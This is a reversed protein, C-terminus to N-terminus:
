ALVKPTYGRRRLEDLLTPVVKPDLFVLCHPAPQVFEAGSLRSIAHLEEPLVDEGFEVVAMQDYMQHRGARSQWTQLTEWVAPPLPFGVQTFVEGVATADQGSHLTHRFAAPDLRLLTKTTDRTIEVSILRLIRRLEGARWDNTLEITEDAMFQLVNAPPRQPVGIPLTSPVRFAVPHDKAYGIQVHLLWSAPGNLWAEVVRGYTSMWVEYAMQQPDAAQNEIVWKWQIAQWPLNWLDRRLHYIVRRFTEIDFWTDAPLGAVLRALWVDTSQVQVLLEDVSSWYTPGRVGQSQTWPFAMDLVSWTKPRHQQPTSETLTPRRLRQLRELPTMTEWEADPKAAPMLTPRGQATQVRCLGAALMQDLLFRALHQESATRYGWRTLTVSDLLSARRPDLTQNLGMIPNPPKKETLTVLPLEAALASLLQEAQQTIGTVTLHVPQSLRDAAVYQMKPVAPRPLWQRYGAPLLYGNYENFFLVCRETLNLITAEIAKLTMSRETTQALVEKLLRTPARSPEMVALWGAVVLEEATLTQVAVAMHAPNGLYDVMQEVLDSKANGKLPWGWLRAAQRLAPVTVGDLMGRLAILQQIREEDTIPTVVDGPPM